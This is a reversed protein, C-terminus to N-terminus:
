SKFFLSAIELAITDIEDGRGGSLAVQVLNCADDLLRLELSEAAQDEPRGLALGEQEHLVVLIVLLHAIPRWPADINDHVPRARRNSFLYIADTIREITM